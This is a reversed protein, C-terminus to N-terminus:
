ALKWILLVILSIAIYLIYLHISGTQMWRFRLLLWEMGKFVPKWFSATCVDPAESAFNGEPPFYGEPRKIRKRLRLAGAVLNMFPQAFSSATYQMHPTPREYGCDWTVADTRMRGSVRTYRLWALAAVLVAFTLSVAVILILPVQIQDFLRLTDGASLNVLNELVPKLMTLTLPASLGIIVCLAALIVMPWRMAGNSEHAQAAQASRPQGLFVIGFAKTFCAVALGGILALAIITILVPLAGWANLLQVGQFAGAYIMFESIFGNLPPLGCIAVAGTLFMTGTWPMHRLLGGTHEMDLIQTAHQVSGAGLFLLGKFIAHNLTHLLAGGYGLVMQAPLGTAQGLTGIGLGLFIIGINEVSHYALLRKLDHQALALLVGLVGSVCGIGILILAWGVPPPGLWTLTRMVGYIGTKIMVGSMVASVHSPAAPHAEPLWVHLPVIGAKTGFGILALVFFLSAQPHLLSGAAAFRDFDLSGAKSGILIFFFLLAMTGLHTAVLYTWGARQVSERENDMTVLFFSALAMVEWAVLFLVANRAIVVMVMSVTLLNFFAWHIGLRQEYKPSWLYRAGYVAALGALLFIPLLFFASLADAEVYFSGYPIAWPLRLTDMAGPEVLVWVSGVLGLVAGVVAGGLGYTTAMKPYGRALLAGIGGAVIVALALLIIQM